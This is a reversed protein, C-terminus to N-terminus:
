LQGLCEGGRGNEDDSSDYFRKFAEIREQMQESNRKEQSSDDALQLAESVESSSVNFFFGDDISGQSSPSTTARQVVSYFNVDEAPCQNEDSPLNEAKDMGETTLLNESPFTKTKLAGFGSRILDAPDSRDKITQYDSGSWRSFECLQVDELKVNNDDDRVNMEDSPEDRTGRLPEEDDSSSYSYSDGMVALSHDQQRGAAVDVNMMREANMELDESYMFDDDKECGSDEAGRTWPTETVAGQEQKVAPAANLEAGAYEGSSFDSPYEAITEGAEQHEDGTFDVMKVAYKEGDVEPILDQLNQLCLGQFELNDKVTSSIKYSNDTGQLPVNGEQETTMHESDSDSSEEKERKGEEAEVVEMMMTEDGHGGFHSAEEDTEAEGQVKSSDKSNDTGKSAMAPGEAFMEDENQADYLDDSCCVSMLLGEPEETAGVTEEVDEGSSSGEEESSTYSDEGDSEDGSSEENEAVLPTDTTVMSLLAESEDAVEQLLAEDPKTTLSEAKDEERKEDFGM